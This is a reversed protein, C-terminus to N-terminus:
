HSLVLGKMVGLPSTRAEFHEESDLIAFYADILRNEVAERTNQEWISQKLFKDKTPIIGERIMAASAVEIFAKKEVMDEKVLQNMFGYTEYFDRIEVDIFHAEHFDKKGLAVRYRERLTNIREAEEGIFKARKEIDQHIDYDLELLKKYDVPTLTDVNAYFASLIARQYRLDATDDGDL